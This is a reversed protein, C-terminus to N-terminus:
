MWYSKSFTDSFTKFWLSANQRMERTMLPTINILNASDNEKPGEGRECVHSFLRRELPSCSCIVANEHMNLRASELCPWALYLAYSTHSDGRELGVVSFVDIVQATM